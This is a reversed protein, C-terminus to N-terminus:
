KRQGRKPAGRQPHPQFIRNYFIKAGCRPTDQASGHNWASLMLCIEDGSYGQQRWMAIIEQKIDKM